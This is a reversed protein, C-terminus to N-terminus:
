AHVCSHRVPLRYGRAGAHRQSVLGPAVVVPPDWLQGPARGRLYAPGRCAFAFPLQTRTRSENWRLGSSSPESGNAAAPHPSRIGRTRPRGPALGTGRALLLRCPRGNTSGASHAVRIDRSPVDENGRAVGDTRTTPGRHAEHVAHSRRRTSSIMAENASRSALKGM